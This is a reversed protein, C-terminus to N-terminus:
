RPVQNAPIWVDTHEGLRAGEFNPPTVGVIRIPFPSAPALAGVIDLRGGFGLRWLRDSIIAVPEAGYRDDDKTFDRGHVTLGLVSFYEFTVGTTEVEHGIEAFVVHPAFGAEFGSTAVQGAVSEFIDSRRLNQELGFETSVVGDTLGSNSDDGLVMVLRNADSVPDPRLWIAKVLSFVVLNAGVALALTLIVLAVYARQALLSRLTRM